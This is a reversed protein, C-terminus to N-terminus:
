IGGEGCVVRLTVIRDAEPIPSIEIVKGIYAVNRM